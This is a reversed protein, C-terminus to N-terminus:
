YFLMSEIRNMMGNDNYFSGKVNDVVKEATSVSVIPLGFMMKGVNAPDKDMLGVFQFGKLGELLTATYRGIGYLIMKSNKYKEFRATFEDLEIQYKNNM